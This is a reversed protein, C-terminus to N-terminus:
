GRAGGLYTTVVRQDEDEVLDKLADWDSDYEHELDEELHDDGDVFDEHYM